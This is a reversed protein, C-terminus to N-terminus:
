NNQDLNELIVHLIAKFVQRVIHNLARKDSRYFIINTIHQLYQRETLNLFIIKKKTSGVM